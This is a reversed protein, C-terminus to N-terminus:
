HTLWRCWLTKFLIKTDVLQVGVELKILSASEWVLEYSISITGCRRTSRRGGAVM